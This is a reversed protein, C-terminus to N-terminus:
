AKQNLKILNDILCAVTLPGVGGPVPAVYSAKKYADMDIDGRIKGEESSTGVDILIVGDKVMDKKILGPCGTGSIVIDANKTFDPINDVSKDIFSFDARNNKLWVSLPRGVLKGKGVLAMKKNVISIEYRELLYKIAGVVPPFIPLSGMSFDAFSKDSLVDIDKEVPIFNLIEATNFKSPLPLQVVVGSFNKDNIIKKIAESLEGGDIESSFNFLKFGVGVAECAEQKKRIYSSSVLSNGVLIVAIKLRLQKKKIEESIEMLIEKSLKNGDLIIM